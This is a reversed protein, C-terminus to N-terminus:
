VNASIQLLTQRPSGHKMRHPSIAPLTLKLMSGHSKRSTMLRSKHQLLTRFGRSATLPYRSPLDSMSGSWFQDSHDSIRRLRLFTRPSNNGFRRVHKSMPIWMPAVSAISRKSPIASASYRATGFSDPAGIRRNMVRAACGGFSKPKFLIRIKSSTSWSM